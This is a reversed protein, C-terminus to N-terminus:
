PISNTYATSKSLKKQGRVSIKCHNVALQEIGQKKVEYKGTWYTTYKTRVTCCALILSGGNPDSKTSHSM